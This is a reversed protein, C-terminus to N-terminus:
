FEDEGVTRRFRGKYRNLSEDVEGTNRGASALLKRAREMVDIFSAPDRPAPLRGLIASTAVASAVDGSILACELILLVYEVPAQSPTDLSEGFDKLMFILSLQSIRGRHEPKNLIVVAGRYDIKGSSLQHGLAYLLWLLRDSKINIAQPRGELAATVATSFYEIFRSLGEGGEVHTGAESIMRLLDLAGSKLPGRNRAVFRLLEDKELSAQNKRLLLCAFLRALGAQDSIDIQDLQTKPLSDRILDEAIKEPDGDLSVTTYGLNEADGATEEEQVQEEQAAPQQGRRTGGPLGQVQYMFVGIPKGDLDTKRHEFVYGPPDQRRDLAEYGFKGLFDDLAYVYIRYPLIEACVRGPEIVYSSVRSAWDGEVNHNLWAALRQEGYRLMSKQFEQGAPSHRTPGDKKKGFWPFPM